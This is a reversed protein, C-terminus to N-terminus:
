VIALHYLADAYVKACFLLREISFKEDPRHAVDPDGKMGAGFAVGNPAVTTAYTRGGMTHPKTMDGTHGRYVKLLTKVPEADQPVYLPPTHHVEAITWGTDTLSAQARAVVSDDWTAPYRVNFTMSLTGDLVSVIGVNCTLPGTIEDKGAIGIGSGDTACRAVLESLWSEPFLDFLAEALKKAANIGKQPSAGHSAKGKAWIRLAKDGEDTVKFTRKRKLTKAIYGLRDASGILVVEAEDPVMNPRLGSNFVAVLSDGIPRTATLTFSGKEAYYLPFGADPTFALDPKAQKAVDFYHRMCEWGSEEDCGFILRVKRTLPLGSDLVAKAGFLAAFTPGKDDSAGRAYLWDGDIEAGWPERTWGSGLPVVDLHGLMAVIEPADEPGFEAHGAFGGFNETRMGLSACLALTHELADACPKGFPAGPGVSEPENVSPIRLVAQTEAIIQDKHTDVWGSFLSLTM